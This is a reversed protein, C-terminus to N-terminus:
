LPLFLGMGVLVHDDGVFIGLPDLIEALGIATLRVVFFHSVEFINM